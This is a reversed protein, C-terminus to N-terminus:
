PTVTTTAPAPTASAPVTTAAPSATSAPTAVPPPTQTTAPPVPTGTASPEVSSTPSASPDSIAVTTGGPEIGALPTTSANTTSPTPSPETVVVVTGVSAAVAGAVASRASDAAPKVRDNKEAAANLVVTSLDQLAKLQTKQVADVSATQKEIQTRLQSVESEFKKIQEPSITGRDTLVQIEYVRAHTQHLQIDVRSDGRALAYDVREQTTKLGYNWDGPVANDTTVFGFTVIGAAATGALVIGSAIATRARGAVGQPEIPRYKRERAAELFRSKLSAEFYYSPPEADIASQLNESCELLPALWASDHEYIALVTDLDHGSELLAHAEALVVAGHGPRPRFRVPNRM